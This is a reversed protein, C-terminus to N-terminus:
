SHIPPKGPNLFLNFKFCLKELFCIIAGFWALRSNWLLPVWLLLWIQCNVLGVSSTWLGGLFNVPWVKYDLNGVWSIQCNVLQEKVSHQHKIDISPYFIKRQITFLVFFNWVPYVGLRGESSSQFMLLLFLFLNHGHNILIYINKKATSTGNFHLQLPTSTGNLHWDLLPFDLPYSDLFRAFKFM